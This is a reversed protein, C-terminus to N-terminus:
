FPFYETKLPFWLGIPVNRHHLLLSTNFSCPADLFSCITTSIVIFSGIISSEWPILSGTSCHILKDCFWHVLLDTLLHTFSAIPWHTVSEPFCHTLSGIPWHNSDEIYWYFMLLENIIWHILTTFWHTLWDNFWHILSGIVCQILSGLFWGWGGFTSWDGTWNELAAVTQRVTQWSWRGFTSWVHCKKRSKSSCISSERCDQASKASWKGPDLRPVEAVAPAPTWRCFIDCHQSHKRTKRGHIWVSGLRWKGVVQHHTTSMIHNVHRHKWALWGGYRLHWGNWSPNMPEMNWSSSCPPGGLYWLQTPLCNVLNM